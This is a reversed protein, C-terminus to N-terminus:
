RCTNPTESGTLLTASSTQNPLYSSMVLIRSTSPPPAPSLRSQHGGGAWPAWAAARADQGVAEPPWTVEAPAWVSAALPGAFQQAFAGPRHRVPFSSVTWFFSEVMCVGSGGASHTVGLLATEAQRSSPSTKVEQGALLAEGGRKPWAWTPGLMTRGMGM